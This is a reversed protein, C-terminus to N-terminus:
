IVTVCVVHLFPILTTLLVNIILQNGLFELEEIHQTTDVVSVNDPRQGRNGTYLTPM